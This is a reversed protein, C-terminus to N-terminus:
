KLLYSKIKSLCKVAYEMSEATHIIETNDIEFAGQKFEEVAKKKLGKKSYIIGKYYREKALPSRKSNGFNLGKPFKDIKEICELAKTLDGTEIAKMALAIITEKYAKGSNEAGEWNEFEQHELINLAEELRGSDRLIDVIQLMLVSKNKAKEMYPLLSKRGELDQKKDYVKYLIILSSTNIENNIEIDEKLYRMAEELDNKYVFYLLGLNRLLVTYRLGKKYSILYHILAEDKRGKAHYYTGLLYEAKGTSDEFLDQEIISVLFKENLFAYDLSEELVQELDEFASNGLEKTIKQKLIRTKIGPKTVLDILKDADEWLGLEAYELALSLLVREDGKTYAHIGESMQDLGLIFGECLLYEDITLTGELISKANHELADKRLAVCKLFTSYGTNVNNEALTDYADKYYGLYISIKVFEVLSPVYYESDCAIDAFLRRALKYNGKEKQIAAMMFRAESNRNDLALVRKYAEEGEELLGEKLYIAGLRNLTVTCNPNQSLNKKYLKIADRSRGLSGHFAACDLIKESYNQGRNVRSDEYLDIDLQEEIFEDRSGISLLHKGAGYVELSLEEPCVAGKLEFFERYIKGCVLNIIKSYTQGGVTLLVKCNEISEVSYFTVEIGKDKIDLNVAVEKGAHVLGGTNSIPYWYESWQIEQHPKMFKYVMQSEFPGSQIELYKSADETLAANWVESLEDNGWTFFKAGKLLKRDAYHIVGYQKDMSYTGFFNDNMLKGFTEYAYPVEQLNSYDKGKYFPWKIYQPDIHNVCWDFPYLLRTSKDFDIAANTWFYFRNLERTPNYLKVKQEIYAKDKYLRLEVKWNMGSMLEINGFEVAASGDEYTKTLYNVRDMTNPSHSIPFNFEVGGSIWAGRTGIMRPKIVANRYFIERSNIKDYASFLRGGFNPLVILKLYDNELMIAEHDVNEINYSRNNQLTYPYPDLREELMPNIDDELLKYTPIMVKDIWVKANEM